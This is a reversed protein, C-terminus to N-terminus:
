RDEAVGLLPLLRVLRRRALRDLLDRDVLELLPLAVPLELPEPPQLLIVARSRCARRFRRPVIAEVDGLPFPPHGIVSPSDPSLCPRGVALADITREGGGSMRGGEEDDTM